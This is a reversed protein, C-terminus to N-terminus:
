NHPPQDNEGLWRRALQQMQDVLVHVHEPADALVHIEVGPHLVFRTWSEGAASLVAPQADAEIVQRIEEISLNRDRLERIQTLAEVHASTYHSSRGKGAAPPVLGQQVYYRITRQNVGTADILEDLTFRPEIERDM